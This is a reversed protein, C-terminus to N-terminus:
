SRRRGPVYVPQLGAINQHISLRVTACAEEPTDCLVLWRGHRRYRFKDGDQYLGDEYDYYGFPAPGPALDLRWPRDTYWAFFLTYASRHLRIIRHPTDGKRWVIAPALHQRIEVEGKIKVEETYGGWLIISVYHFPHTHHFPTRDVDIFHHVRVMLRWVKLLKWRHLFGKLHNYPGFWM